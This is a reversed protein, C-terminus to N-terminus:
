RSFRIDRNTSPKLLFLNSEGDDNQPGRKNCIGNSFKNLHNQMKLAAESILAVLLWKWCLALAALALAALALV